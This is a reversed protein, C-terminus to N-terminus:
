EDVEGYFNCDMSTGEFDVSSPKFIFCKTGELEKIFFSSENNGIDEATTCGSLGLVLVCVAAIKRM